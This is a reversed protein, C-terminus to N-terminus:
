FSYGLNFQVRGINEETIGYHLRIPGLPNIVFNIGIGKTIKYGAPDTFSINKFEGNSQKIKSSHGVDMFFYASINPTFIYRYELTGLVQKNGYGFPEDDPYGRVTYSGGVYYYEDVFIQEDKIQPSRIFGLKSQFFIVQKKFTPLFQQYVFDFRTLDIAKPRFKFGQETSFNLYYGKTPNLKQDRKDYISRFQYTYLFYNLNDDLISVSEYKLKHLTRFDYTHPFGFETDLGRRHSDKFKYQQNLLNFSQFNGSSSWIRFTFSRRKGFAWPDSFKIQYTNNRNDYNAAGLGFNGKLMILQGKGMLNDWYLDSFLNFGRNPQFGGGMTFAGSTEKEELTILLNYHHPEETLQLDPIVNDFYNLNFIQRLSKELETKNIVDGPRIEIERLIVYDRTKINGTITIDDIIGEAIKFILSGSSETPREFHYVKAEIYGDKEYYNKITSFDKKVYNLNLPSGIKSSIQSLMEEKTFISMGEFIINTVLPKEEVSITISQSEKIYSISVTKFSGESRLKRQARDLDAQTASQGSVLSTKELIFQESVSTNGSVQIQKIYFLDDTTKESSSETTSNTYNPLIKKIYTAEPTSTPAQAFLFSTLFVVFFISLSTLKTIYM